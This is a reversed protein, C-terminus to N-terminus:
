KKVVAKGAIADKFTIILMNDTSNATDIDGFIFNGDVDTTIITLENFSTDLNHQISWTTSATAIDKVFSAGTPLAGADQSTTGDPLAKDYNVILHNNADISVSSIGIGKLAGAGVLSDETYKISAGYARQFAQKPTMAM